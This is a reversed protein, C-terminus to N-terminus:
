VRPRGEKHGVRRLSRPRLLRAVKLRAVAQAVVGISRYPLIRWGRARKTRRYTKWAKSNDAFAHVSAPSGTPVLAGPLKNALSKLSRRTANTAAHRFTIWLAGGTLGLVRQAEKVVWAQDACEEACIATVLKKKLASAVTADIGAGTLIESSVTVAADLRGWLWDWSRGSVSAFAGFHGWREGYLKRDPWAARQEDSLGLPFPEKADPTIQWFDFNPVDTATEARWSLARNVVELDLSADLLDIGSPADLVPAVQDATARLLKAVLTPLNGDRLYEEAAAIWSTVNGKSAEVADDFSDMWAQLRRQALGLAAFGARQADSQTRKAMARGWWRLVQDAAPLGWHWQIDTPMGRVSPILLESHITQETVYPSRPAPQLTSQRRNARYQEFLANSAMELESLTMTGPGDPRFLRALVYDPDTVTFGMTKLADDLGEVDLRRDPERIARVFATLTTLIGPAQGGDASDPVPDSSQAPVRPPSPNIYVVARRFRNSVARRRLETLLPGFPANDLVGGDMLWRGRSASQGMRHERLDSTEHVPQFATPFGASARAARALTDTKSATDFDNRPPVEPLDSIGLAGAPVGPVAVFRYVRRSDPVVEAIQDHEDAIPLATATVLLSVTPMEAPSQLELPGTEALLDRLQDFFYRGDLISDAPIPDIALLHDASLTARDLWLARMDPLDENCAVVKALVTGNLGGASAGAILDITVATDAAALIDAWARRTANTAAPVQSALRCNNLEHTVGSMWVALSVGGNMVLALRLQRSLEPSGDILASM